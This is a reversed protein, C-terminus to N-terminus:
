YILRPALVKWEVLLHQHSVVSILVWSVFLQRGRTSLASAPNFLESQDPLLQSGRRTRSQCSNIPTAALVLALARILRIPQTYCGSNGCTDNSLLATHHKGPVAFSRYAVRCKLLKNDRINLLPLIM